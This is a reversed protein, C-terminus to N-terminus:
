KLFDRAEQTYEFTWGKESEAVVREYWKGAADNDAVTGRGSRLMRAVHIYASVEEHIAAREFCEFARELDAPGALGQEHMLGLHYLARSAGKESALTLWRLAESHDQAVDNGYLYAIGLISQAVTSGAEAKAKLETIDM